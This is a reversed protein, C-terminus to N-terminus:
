ACLRAVLNAFAKQKLKNREPMDQIDSDVVATLMAGNYGEKRFHEAYSNFGKEKLYSVTAAVNYDSVEGSQIENVTSQSQGTQGTVARALGVFNQSILRLTALNTERDLKKDERDKEKELKKDERDKEQEDFFRNLIAEGTVFVNCLLLLLVMM